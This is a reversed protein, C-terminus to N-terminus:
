AHERTVDAKIPLHDSASRALPTDHVSASVRLSGCHYLRDLRAVPKIAPFTRGPAHETLAGALPELGKGASPWENLDGCLILPMEARDAYEALTEAQKRRYRTTLALHAGVVILPGSDLEVVAAVAGRPELYPLDLRKAKLLRVHRKLLIANGHWGISGPRVAVDAIRYDTMRAITERPLASIREGFRRDAEQLVVVDADMENLVGLTREPRRRMDHGMAKQINYSAIRLM